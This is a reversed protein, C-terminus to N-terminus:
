IRKNADEVVNVEKVHIKPVNLWVFYQFSYIFKIDIEILNRQLVCCQPITFIESFDWDNFYMKIPFNWRPWTFYKRWACRFVLKDEVRWGRNTSSKRLSLPLHYISGLHFSVIHIMSRTLTRAQTCLYNWIVSRCCLSFLLFVVLIYM